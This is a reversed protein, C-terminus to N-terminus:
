KPFRVRLYQETENPRGEFTDLLRQEVQRAEWAADRELGVCEEPTVTRKHDLTDHISCKTFDFLDQHFWVVPEAVEDALDRRGIRKWNKMTSTQVAIRFLVPKRAIEDLDDSPAATHHNYFATYPDELHRGYGFTGDPLMIRLFAGPEHKPRTM